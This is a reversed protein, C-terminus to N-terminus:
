KSPRLDSIVSIPIVIRTFELNVKAVQWGGGKDTGDDQVTTVFPFESPRFRVFTGM